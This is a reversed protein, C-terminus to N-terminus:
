GEVAQELPSPFETALLDAPLTRILEPNREAKTRYAWRMLDRLLRVVAASPVPPRHAVVWSYGGTGACPRLVVPETMDAVPSVLSVAAGSAVLSMVSPADSVRYQLNPEFGARRCDREFAVGLEHEPRMVWAEGSLDALEVVAEAALRHGASMMVWGREHMIEDLVVPGPLPPDDNWRLGIYLDADGTAVANLGEQAGGAVIEWHTGPVLHQALPLMLEFPVIFTRVRLSSPARATAGDALQDVRNLIARAHRLVSRGVDTPRVGHASREFLAQGLSEEIRRLQSSVAPQAIGLRRAAASLSGADAVAVALRLHRIGIEV